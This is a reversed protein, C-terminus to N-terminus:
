CLVVRAITDSIMAWICLHKIDETHILVVDRSVACAMDGVLRWPQVCTFCTDHVAIHFHVMGYYVAGDTEVQVVDGNSCSFGNVRAAISQQVPLNCGTLWHMTQTLEHSADKQPARLKAATSPYFSEDGLNEFMTAVIKETISMEFYRTDDPAFHKIERHKREHVFCALLITFRHYMEALHSAMHFKPVWSDLGYALQHLDLHTRIANYLEDPDVAYARCTKRLMAIVVRLAQFSECALKAAAGAVPAVYLSVYLAFVPLLGLLHSASGKFDQDGRKRTKDFYTKGSANRFAAPWTFSQVFNNLHDQDVKAKDLFCGIEHTAIGDVLYVHMYDYMLLSVSRMSLRAHMLWGDLRLNFGVNKEMEAFKNKSLTKNKVGDHMVRLENVTNRVATDTNLEFENFDTEASSILKHAGLVTGALGSKVSTVNQCCLCILRGGVGKNEFTKKLADADSVIINLQLFLMLTQGCVTFPVGYELDHPELFLMAIMTLFM